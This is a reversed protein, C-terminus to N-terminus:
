SCKETRAMKPLKHITDETPSFFFLSFDNDLACECTMTLFPFSFNGDSLRMDDNNRERIIQASSSLKEQKGRESNKTISLAWYHFETFQM